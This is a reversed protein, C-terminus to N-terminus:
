RPEREMVNMTGYYKAPRFGHSAYFSKLKDVSQMTRGPSKFPFPELCLTVKLKDAIQTLRHMAYTGAGKQAGAMSCFLLVMVKDPLPTPAGTKPHPMYYHGIGIFVKGYPTTIITGPGGVIHLGQDAVLTHYEGMVRIQTILKKAPTM